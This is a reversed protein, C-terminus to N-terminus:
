GPTGAGLDCLPGAVADIDQQADVGLADGALLVLRLTTDFLDGLKAVVLLLDVQGRIPCLSGCLSVQSPMWDNM